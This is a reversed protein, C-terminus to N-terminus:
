CQPLPEFPVLSVRPLVSDHPKLFLVLPAVKKWVSISASPVTRKSLGGAEQCASAHAAVGSDGDVHSVDNVWGQHNGSVRGSGAQLRM